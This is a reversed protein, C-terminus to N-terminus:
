TWKFYVLADKVFMLGFLCLVLGLIRVTYVYARSKLFHRSRGAVIAVVCKAGVLLCYFPIIFLAAALPKVNFAKLMLPGGISFWFMYPSPNLFNAVIGKRISNPAEARHASMDGKFILSEYGLYFLYGAGFLSIVGLILDLATLRELIFLAVVIIPLDTMLPALSVKIGERVGHKLTQTMVLTLLPGPSIGASLGLALGPLLYALEPIDSM